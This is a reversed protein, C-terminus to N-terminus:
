LNKDQPYSAFPVKLAGKRAKELLAFNREEDGGICQKVTPAITKDCQRRAVRHGGNVSPALV